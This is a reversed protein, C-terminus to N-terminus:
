EGGCVLSQKEGVIAVEDNEAIDAEAFNLRLFKEIDAIVLDALQVPFAFSDSKERNTDVSLDVVVPAQLAADFDVGAAITVEVSLDGLVFVPPM